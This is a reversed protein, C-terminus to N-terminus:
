FQNLKKKVDEALRISKPNNLKKALILAMEYHSKAAIYNNKNIEILAAYCEATDRGWITKYKEFLQISKNIYYEAEDNSGMEYLVQGINSYFTELGKEISNDSCLNISKKYYEYADQYKGLEKNTQGLYNYCASISLKYKNNIRNLNSFINISENLLAVANEYKKIKIYYLGKLRLITGREEINDYKELQNLSKNIYKYM